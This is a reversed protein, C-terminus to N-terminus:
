HCGRNLMCGTNVPWHKPEWDHCILIFQGTNLLCRDLALVKQNDRIHKSLVPQVTNLNEAFSLTCLPFHEFVFFAYPARSAANAAINTVFIM